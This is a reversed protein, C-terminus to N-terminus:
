LVNVLKQISNMVDIMRCSVNTYNIRQDHYDMIAGCLLEKLNEFAINQESRTFDYMAHNVAISIDCWVLYVLDLEKRIDLKSGNKNRLDTLKTIDHTFNAYEENLMKMFKRIFKQREENPTLSFADPFSSLCVGICSLKNQHASSEMDKVLQKYKEKIDDAALRCNKASENNTRYNVLAQILTFLTLVCSIISLWYGTWQSYKDIILDIEMQYKSEREIVYKTLKKLQLVEQKLEVIDQSCSLSDLSDIQSMLEKDFVLGHKNFVEDTTVHNIFSGVCLFLFILLGICMWIGLSSICGSDCCGEKKEEVKTEKTKM